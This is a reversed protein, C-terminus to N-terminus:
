GKTSSDTFLGEGQITLSRVGAGNLLERWDGSLKHTVDIARTNFAFRTGRIGGVTTFVETPSAGNGIKLLVDNGDQAVM